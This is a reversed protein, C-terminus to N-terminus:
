SSQANLNGFPCIPSQGGKAGGDKKSPSDEPKSAWKTTGMMLEQRKKAKEDETLTTDRMIAMIKSRMDNLPASEVAGAPSSM